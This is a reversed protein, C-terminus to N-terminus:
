TWRMGLASLEEVREPSLKAAKVRQQSVWAGLRVTEGDINETHSRPVELHGEREQYQSAAALNQAWMEARTRKAPAVTVGLVSTLMWQQTATLKAFGARQAAAWKGLDEGEAIAM